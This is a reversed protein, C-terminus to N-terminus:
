VRVKFCDLNAAEFAFDRAWTGGAPNLHIGDLEYIVDLQASSLTLLKTYMDFLVCGDTDGAIEQVKAVYDAIYPRDTAPPNRVLIPTGLTVLAGSEVGKNAMGRYAAEWPSTLPATADNTGLNIYIAGPRHALIDRDFRAAAGVNPGAPLVTDGDVGANIITGFNKNLGIGRFYGNALQYSTNLNSDGIGAICDLNLVRAFPHIRANPM